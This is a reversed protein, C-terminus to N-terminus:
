NESAVKHISSVIRPITAKSIYSQRTKKPFCFFIDIMKVEKWIKNLTEDDLIKNSIILTAALIFESMKHLRFSM